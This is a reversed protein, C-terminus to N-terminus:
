INRYNINSTILQSDNKLSSIIEQVPRQWFDLNFHQLQEVLATLLRKRMGLTQTARDLKDDALSLQQICNVTALVQPKIVSVTDQPGGTLLQNIEAVKTQAAASLERRKSIKPWLIATHAIFFGLATSTISLTTNSCHTKEEDNLTYALYGAVVSCTIIGARIFLEKASYRHGERLLAVSNSADITNHSAQTFFRTVQRFM